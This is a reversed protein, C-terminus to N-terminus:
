VDPRSAQELAAFISEFSIKKESLAMECTRSTCFGKAPMEAPSWHFREKANETLEPFWLGRDGAMGCCASQLPLVPKDCIMKALEEFRGLRGSKVVSCVPFFRNADKLPKLPLRKALHLAFDTPDLIKLKELQGRAAPSLGASDEFVALACPSNDIVVPFKGSESAAF